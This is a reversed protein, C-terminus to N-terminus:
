LHTVIEIRFIKTHRDLGMRAWTGSGVESHLVKFYWGMRLRTGENRM